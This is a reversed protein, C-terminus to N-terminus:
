VPRCDLVSINSKLGKDGRFKETYFVMFITGFPIEKIANIFDAHIHKKFNKMLECMQKISSRM